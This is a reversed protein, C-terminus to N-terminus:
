DGLLNKGRREACGRAMERKQYMLEATHFSELVRLDNAADAVAHWDGEDMKIKMYEILSKRRYEYNYTTGNKTM